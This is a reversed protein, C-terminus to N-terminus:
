INKGCCQKYKKGSGCPCKSNRGVTQTSVHPEVYSHEVFDIKTLSPVRFSFSTVGNYNSVAFDGKSIIDMGILIDCGFPKGEMVLLKPVTLGNPLKLDIYYCPATYKGQPTYADAFSVPKLDLCEVVAKTIVTSTAGTDWLSIWEKTEKKLATNSPYIFVKNKLVNSLGHKYTTTFSQVAM